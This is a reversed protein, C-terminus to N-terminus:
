STIDDHWNLVLMLCSKKSIKITLKAWKLNHLLSMFIAKVKIYIDVRIVENRQLLSSLFFNEFLKILFHCKQCKDLILM